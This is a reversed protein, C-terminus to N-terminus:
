KAGRSAAGVRPLLMLANTREIATLEPISLGCQRLGDVHLGATRYPFDTGFLIQSAPVLNTLSSMAGPHAAQATDYFLRRLEHLVGNPLREAVHPEAAFHMFRAILFPMTGGAHSFILRMDPYRSASGSFVFDAIARTTDTGYEIVAPPLEPVLDVCCDNTVPHVYVVAKRRNLEEYIPAFLPDGLWRKGYSTYLAIGDAKLVDFAYNIEDLSGAVDPFPLAAFLGFRGPHEASLQVAYENCIRALRRATEVDDDFWFGPVTVSLIATEVGFQDMDQLSKDVTWKRMPVPVRDGLEAVYAPPVFHHHVDIRGADKTEV